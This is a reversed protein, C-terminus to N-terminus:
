VGAQAARVRRVDYLLRALDLARRFTEVERSTVVVVEVVIRVFAGQEKM